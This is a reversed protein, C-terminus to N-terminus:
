MVFLKRISEGLEPYGNLFDKLSMPKGGEVQIKQQPLFKIIKEKTQEGFSNPRLGSSRLGQRLRTWASPWPYYARIMRDLKEPTPPSTIEFFGDEKQIHATFTAKTHDQEQPTITNGHRGAPLNSYHQITEPLMQAGLLFAKKALSIFTDDKNIMLSKQALIPGHDVDADMKILTVATESEGSLITEQIPSPGRYDPLKSPHINISGYQPLNIVEEPIIKGYAAVVFLDPRDNHWQEMALNNLEAITDPQFVPIAHDLAFQKVPTPTLTHKRGVKEDPTTVIGVVTFHKMLSEIVPIVFDPTGFFVVNM